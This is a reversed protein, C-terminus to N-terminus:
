RLFVEPDFSTLPIVRVRPLPSQFAGVDTELDYVHVGLTTYQGSTFEPFALM